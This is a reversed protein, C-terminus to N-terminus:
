LFPFKLQKEQSDHNPAAFCVVKSLFIMRVTVDVPKHLSSPRILTAASVFVPLPGNDRGYKREDHQSSFLDKVSESSGFARWEVFHM